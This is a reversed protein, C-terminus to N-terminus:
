KKKGRKRDIIDLIDDMYSIGLFITILTMAWIAFAIAM